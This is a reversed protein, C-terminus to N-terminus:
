SKAVYECASLWRCWLWGYDTGVWVVVRDASSSLLISLFLSLYLCLPLSLSLSISACVLCFEKEDGCGAPAFPFVRDPEWTGWLSAASVTPCQPQLVCRTLQSKQSINLRIVIRIRIMIKIFCFGNAKNSPLRSQSNLLILDLPPFLHRDLTDEKLFQIKNSIISFVEVVQILNESVSSPNEM